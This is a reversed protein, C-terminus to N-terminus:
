SNYRKSKFNPCDLQNPNIHSWQQNSTWWHPMNFKKFKIVDREEIKWLM